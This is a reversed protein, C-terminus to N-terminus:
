LGNCDSHLYLWTIINDITVTHPEGGLFYSILRTKHGSSHLKASSKHQQQKELESENSRRVAPSSRASSKM